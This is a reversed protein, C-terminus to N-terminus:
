KAGCFRNFLNIALKIQVRAALYWRFLINTLKNRFLIVDYTGESQPRWTHHWPMNTVLSVRDISSSSCAKILVEELLVQGPSYKEQHEDYAIKMIHKRHRVRISFQAAVATRGLHLLTVEPVFETNEQGLLSLYFNKLDPRLQIASGTGSEGKWGSAELRLFEEFAAMQDGAAKGVVVTGAPLEQLRRHSKKLSARINKSFSSSLDDYTQTTEFFNCPSSPRLTITHGRIARAIAMANSSHIIRPWRIVDWKIPLAGFAEIMCNAVIAPDARSDVPFDTLAIHHSKPLSLVNISGFPAITEKSVIAPIVAVTSEGDFVQVLYLCVDDTVLSTAYANFLEFRAWLDCSGHLSSWQEAVSQVGSLGAYVQFHWPRSRPSM